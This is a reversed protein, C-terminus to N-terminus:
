PEVGEASIKGGRLLDELHNRQRFLQFDRILIHAEDLSADITDQLFSYLFLDSESAEACELIQLAHQRADDPELQLSLDQWQLSVIAQRTNFGFIVGVYEPLPQRKERVMNLVQAGFLETQTAKKKGFGKGSNKNFDVFAHYVAAESEAIAAAHFIAMARNRAHSLTLAFSIGQHSFYVMPAQSAPDITSNVYLTEPNIEMM